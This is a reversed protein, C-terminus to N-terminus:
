LIRKLRNSVWGALLALLVCLAGYFLPSEEAFVKISSNTGVQEVLLDHHNTATIKQNELYFVSVTYEGVPVNHPLYFSVKFFRDGLPTIQTIHKSLLAKDQQNRILAQKFLTLIDEQKEHPALFALASVGIQYESLVDAGLIDKLPRTAAVRYFSPLRSFVVEKGYRWGAWSKEKRRVNMDKDPGRLVVVVDGEAARAGYMEFKAGNFGTTIDIHDVVMDTVIKQQKNVSLPQASIPAGAMSLLFCIGGISLIRKIM